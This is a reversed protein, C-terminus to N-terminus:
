RALKRPVPDEQYLSCKWSGKCDPTYPISSALYEGVSLAWVVSTKGASFFVNQRPNKHQTKKKKETLWFIFV